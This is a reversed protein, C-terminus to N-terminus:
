FTCFLIDRPLTIWFKFSFWNATEFIVLVQHIKIPASSLRLIQAKIPGKRAFYLVKSRFFYLLTLKWSVSSDHLIQLFVSKHNPFHCSFHCYTVIPVKMPHKQGFYFIILYFNVSSNNTIVSFFSSSDPSFNVQRKLISLLYKM